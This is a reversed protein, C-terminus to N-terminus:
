VGGRGGCTHGGGLVVISHSGGFGYERTTRAAFM